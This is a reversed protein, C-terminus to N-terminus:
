DVKAAAPVSSASGSLRGALFCSTAQALPYDVNALIIQFSAVMPVALILGAVDWLYGWFAVSLLVTVPHLAFKTGLITPELFSGVFMHIALPLALALAKSTFPLYPDLIVLPLPFVSAMFPGFTPIFNALATLLALLLACDVQLFRWVTWVAIGVLASILTKIQIYKRVQVNIKDWTKSAPKRWTLSDARPHVTPALGIPALLLFALFVLVIFLQGASESAVNLTRLLARQLVTSLEPMVGQQLDVKLWRLLAELQTAVIMAGHLYKGKMQRLNQVSQAIAFGLGVLVALCLVVSGVTAAWRPVFICKCRRIRPWCGSESPLLPRSCGCNFISYPRSVADVIPKFIYMLMISFLFPVLIAKLLYCIVGTTLGAIILLSIAVVELADESYTYMFHDPLDHPGTAPHRGKIRALLEQERHALQKERQFLEEEMAGLQQAQENAALIQSHLLRLRDEIEGMQADLRQRQGEIHANLAEREASLAEADARAGNLLQEKLAHLGTEWSDLVAARKQLQALIDPHDRLAESLSQPNEDRWQRLLAETLGQGRGAPDEAGSEDHSTEDEEETQSTTLTGTSHASKRYSHSVYQLFSDGDTSGTVEAAEEEEPNRSM